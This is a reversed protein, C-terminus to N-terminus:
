VSVSLSLSSFFKMSTEGEEEEERRIQVCGCSLYIFSAPNIGGLVFKPPSIEISKIWQRRFFFFFM